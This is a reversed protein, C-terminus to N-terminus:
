KAEFYMKLGIEGLSTKNGSKKTEFMGRYKYKAEFMFRHGSISTMSYNELVRSESDSDSPFWAEKMTGEFDPM